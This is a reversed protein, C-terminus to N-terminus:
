ANILQEKSDSYLKNFLKESECKIFERCSELHLERKKYNDDCIIKLDDINYLFVNNIKSLAPDIDRPVALDLITLPKNLASLIGEANERNLIFHPARTSSILIDVKSLYSYLEKFEIAEGAFEDALCDANEFTRNTIYINELKAKHLNRLILRCIEGSGIVLVKKGELFSLKEKALEVAVSGVNVCSEHFSFNNRARKNLAFARQFILNLNKLTCSQKLAIEYAEKVQSFIQTEGLVLSDLGTVVQFLHEISSINEYSYFSGELGSIDVNKFSFLFDKITAKAGEINESSIYFEVRNCTSLILCENIFRRKKLDSLAKGLEERSFAFKERVSLPATKHNLGLVQVHM